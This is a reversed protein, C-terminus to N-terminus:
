SQRTVGLRRFALAESIRPATIREEGSLDAITRAVKLVKYFGRASLGLKHMAQDLRRRDGPDIPCDRETEKTSLAANLKGSRARMRGRAQRIDTIAADHQERGTSSTNTLAGQPLPPVMIQLDIRDVLPGSIKAMYKDVMDARCNCQHATATSGYYGCPCPNMAAVLQFAAPYTVQHNARSIVIHGSEIPERLVELVQRSFEPLEDLFLV